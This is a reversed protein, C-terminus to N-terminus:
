VSLHCHIGRVSFQQRLKDTVIEGDPLFTRVMFTDSSKMTIESVDTVLIGSDILKDPITSWAAESINVIKNGCKMKDIRKLQHLISHWPLGYALSMEFEYSNDIIELITYLMIRSMINLEEECINNVKASRKPLRNKDLRSKAIIESLYEQLADINLWPFVSYLHMFNEKPLDLIVKGEALLDALSAIITRLLEISAIMGSLYFISKSNYSLCSSNVFKPIKKFNDNNCSFKINPYCIPMISFCDHGKEIIRCKHVIGNMNSGEPLYSSIHEQDLFYPKYITLNLRNSGSLFSFSHNIDACLGLHEYLENISCNVKIPIEIHETDLLLSGHLQLMKIIKARITEYSETNVSAYFAYDPAFLCRRWVAFGATIIQAKSKVKDRLANYSKQLTHGHHVMEEFLLIRSGNFEHWPYTDIARTSVIKSWDWLLHREPYESILARLVATGKREGCVILDIKETKIINELFSLIESEIVAKNLM